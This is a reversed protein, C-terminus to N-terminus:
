CEVAVPHTPRALPFSTTCPPTNHGSPPHRVDQIPLGFKVFATNGSFHRLVVTDNSVNELEYGPPVLIMREGDCSIWKDKATIRRQAKQTHPPQFTFPHLCLCSNATNLLCGDESFVLTTTVDEFSFMVAGKAIDWLRVTGDKSSTALMECSPSFSLTDVSEDSAQLTRAIKGRAMDWLFVKGNNFSASALMKTDPSFVLTTLSGMFVTSKGGTATHWLDIAGWNKATALMNGNKSFQVIDPAKHPFLLVGEPRPRRRVREGAGITTDWVRITDDDSGSALIHSTPSFSLARISDTHGQLIRMAKWSTTDWLVLMHDDATSALIKGDRSFELARITEFHPFFPRRTGRTHHSRGMVKVRWGSAVEYFSICCLSAAVLNEGNPSFAVANASGGVSDLTYILLDTVVDWLNITCDESASALKKRDHSLVVANVPKNHGKLVNRVVGSTDWLRVTCDDSASALAKSDPTFTVANVRKTHGQVVRQVRGTTDWLRIARDNSASALLKGNPSFAIANIRDDEQLVQKVLGTAADWFRITCDSSASALLRGDPSFAVGNVRSPHEDLLQLYPDWQKQLKFSHEIFDLRERSFHDKIKCQQPCFVFAATYAQLPAKGIM